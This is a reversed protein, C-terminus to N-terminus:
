CVNVDMLSVRFIQSLKQPILLEESHIQDEVRLAADEDDWLVTDHEVVVDATM